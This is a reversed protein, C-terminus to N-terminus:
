WHCGGCVGFHKCRPTVRIPAAEIVEVVEAYAFRGKDQTIEARVREGPIGYAVFIARGNHRGVASGGHAMNILTLEIITM